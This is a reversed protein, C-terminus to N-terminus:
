QCKKWKALVGGHQTGVKFIPLQSYSYINAPVQAANHRISM